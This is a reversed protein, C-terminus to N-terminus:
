GGRGGEGARATTVIYPNWNWKALDKVPEVHVTCAPGRADPPIEMRPPFNPGQPRVCETPLYLGSRDQVFRDSSGAM